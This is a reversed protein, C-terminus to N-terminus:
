RAREEPTLEAGVLLDPRREATRRIAEGRRWAGIAPHDGSLLVQPVRKGEFEAPRTYQPGELLGGTHSEHALSGPEIVGPVLRVVADAVVMAPLEGGTLVYDGISLEEDVDGEIVREDVGEYHGAVLVLHPLLALRRATAQDFLRGQASLLVVHGGGARVARIAGSVPEPKLVMGAGGGYPADDVTRHRDTAWDRMDHVRIEVLGAEQARDVISESFPGAFMGPFLTLVDIRM